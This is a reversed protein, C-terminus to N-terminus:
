INQDQWLSNPTFTQLQQLLVNIDGNIYTIEIQLPEPVSRSNITLYFYYPRSLIGTRDMHLFPLPSFNQLQLPYKSKTVLISDIDEWRFQYNQGRKLIMLGQQDGRILPHSSSLKIAATILTIVSGILLAAPLLPFIWFTGAGTSAFIFSFLAIFVFMTLSLSLSIIGFVLFFTPLSKKERYEFLM